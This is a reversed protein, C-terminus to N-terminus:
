AWRDTSNVLTHVLRACDPEVLTPQRIWEATLRIGQLCAEADAEGISAV